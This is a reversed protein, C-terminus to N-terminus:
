CLTLLILPFLVPDLLSKEQRLVIRLVWIHLYFVSFIGCELHISVCVILSLGTSCSLSLVLTNQASLDRKGWRWLTSLWLIAWSTPIFSVVKPPFMQITTAERGQAGYSLCNYNSLSLLGLLLIAMAM